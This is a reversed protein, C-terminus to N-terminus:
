LPQSIPEPLSTDHRQRELEAPRLPVISIWALLTVAAGAVLMGLTALSPSHLRWDGIVGFVLAGNAAVVALACLTSAVRVPRNNAHRGMVAPCATFRLLPVVVFPLQLSLVVQSAILLPMTGREGVIALVIVAPVIAVGRTLLRRWVPPLRLRLFGEMVVQGALTGTISSSQGSCLLAVAFLAAALSTGLVPTLLRHAVQLDPVELGRTYFTAAAIVLIAANLLLASGLALATSWFGRRLLGAQAARSDESPGLVLASHLYLNHPMVTAGLMGVAVFLSGADLRPQLGDVVAGWQPRSLLVQTGLCLAIILVLSGVLLEIGRAGRQQIALILFVDCVTLLAGPLLPLGFLLKLAIASGLVEALDCAVIALEALAWLPLLLGRPFYQRCASALDFGTVIGLRLSLTQLITAVLGSTVLVWLLQYGFRSGGEIDTAWNGPDLYGVSVLTAAGLLVFRPRSAAAPAAAKPL